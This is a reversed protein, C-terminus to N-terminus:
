PTVTLVGDVYTIAYNSLGAGAAGSAVIAYDGAAAETPAGDSALAVTSVSDGNVLGSVGYGDLVATEGYAKSADSATITLTAPVVTLKGDVYTVVYNSLGAGTAGGATIAYDGVFATAVSGDSALSVAEVTDGNVLGSVSYGDLVATEGYTKAADSATITLSAPVVTLTGDVYTVVYNSLGSGAAESAAVAYDGVSATAPAGDSALAVSSVTDGNVLGTATYSLTATAGYTKTVDGATITLTAPVVTLTGGVYTVVYNSLGSGTAGSAAVGYDGVSAIATAGDSALAVSSVSDSNVLGSVGYTLSATEGYTKSADSATITLSAPVVTLAGNVYTVVYNSLGSGTAASATVAYDGVSATAASGNSALTVSSVSDSNVLGSVSYGDLTATEGYTKSANSATITLSAPVVTLKGNVYTVVYNSLGSGTAASATVAYDGVFATAASGDSTVSVTSVTDGNVLGSVSYGDVVTTQGYTKSASSATITLAAPDVSLTGDAYTIVYNSLGTGTAGGATIAYDGVSATSATGDSALALTTISDRAALGTATYTLSATQGYTKSLSNAAITLSAPTITLTTDAGYVIDYGQQSSYLGTIGTTYTGVDLASAGASTPRATGLVVAGDISTTYDITTDLLGNYVKTTAVPTVTLAKLFSRLLPTTYGEYIRWTSSTGGSADLSWGVATFTSATMLEALTKGYVNAYRAAATNTGGVAKLTPNATTNWFSYYAYSDLNGILGGAGTSSSSTVKGLSYSYYVRGGTSGVLGGASGASTVDGTAYANTISNSTYGILGGTAGGTSVVDGTAYSTAVTGTSYGILGGGYSGAVTVDGTAYVGSVNASNWGLLGGGQTGSAVVDGTAYSSIVSSSNYGVLGGVYSAGSTYSSSHSGTITGANAGVLGGVYNGGSVDGSSSSDIIVGAAANFGVLGGARALGYITASSSSYQITGSNTGAFGGDYNSSGYVTGAATSYSITGSNTGVFGGTNTTNTTNSNAYSYSIVGANVGAFGGVSGGTSTVTAEAWSYSVNGSQRGILGGLGGGGTVLGNAWSYTVTASNWGILGGGYTYATVTASSGANTVTGAANGILGGIYQNGSVNGTVTVNSVTGGSYGALGGVYYDGTVSVNILDLDRFVSTSSGYAFLGSYDLTSDTNTVNSVSHGLGALTGNFKGSGSTGIPDWNIGAADIDEALAYYGSTGLAMLAAATHILTYSTGNIKLSASTGALTVSAGDAVSYDGGYTLVLGSTTGTATIDANFAINRVATLTLITSATWSVADNVFLDGSGTTAGATSAITVNTTALQASLAAGTIDGGSAAITFDTPDILWSGTAGDAALTTITADDAVSVTAASTEIFGGDGGDPASADLVGGVQVTGTDADALLLIRGEREGITRARVTGTNSVVSSVAEGAAQATMVVQGGDAIIMGGNSVLTSVTAPDVEVSLLGDAGANLRVSQGAALVANGGTTTIAGTNVVSAGILAVGGAGANITGANTVSGTAGDLTFVTSSANFDDDDIDATTAILGGVDVQANSGFLIGNPNVLYVSGNATLAGDITSAGAGIVRNLTVSSTSPQLFTVSAQAGIDFSNWNIIARDTSQNVTLASASADITASGSTVVGGTPLSAADLAFASTGAFLAMLGLTMGVRNRTRVFGTSRTQKMGM